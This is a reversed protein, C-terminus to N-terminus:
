AISAPQWTKTSFGSAILISSASEAALKVDRMLETISQNVYYFQSNSNDSSNLLYRKENGLKENLDKLKSHSLMNDIAISIQGSLEELFGLLENINPPLRKFSFHITGIIEDRIILPFAIMSKLGAKWMAKARAIQTKKSIDKIIVPKRSEILLHAVSGKFSPRSSEGSGGNIQVGETNAFYSFSNSKTNFIKIAIRDYHILKKIELALTKFLGEPTRQTIIANNINLLAQYKIAPDGFM